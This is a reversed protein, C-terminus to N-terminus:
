LQAALAWMATLADREPDVPSLIIETAGADRYRGVQEAVHDADGLIALDAARELGERALVRQYSSFQDYFNLSRAAEGRAHELDTTVAVPISAVIAPSPRGAEDAAADITPKILEAITRPGALYTITGDAGAGAVELAKPGMAAVFVPMPRGGPVVPSLETHASIELGDFDAAGRHFIANLVTLYERLRTMQKGPALGFSRREIDNGGLGIGLSFNGHSAAQATQAASAILLPHRPNIPVIATGVALDPISAGVVAALALADLDYRQGFWVRRVGCAFATRAQWLADDVTNDASPNPRIVVGAIM